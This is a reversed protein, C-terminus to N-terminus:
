RVIVRFDTLQDGIRHFFDTFVADDGDFLGLADIGVKFDNLSHLKVAPIERGIENGIRFGHLAHQVLRHDQDM